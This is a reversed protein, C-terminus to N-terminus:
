LLAKRPSRASMKLRHSVACRVRSLRRNLLSFFIMSRFYGPLDALQAEPTRTWWRQYGVKNLNIKESNLDFRLGYRMM